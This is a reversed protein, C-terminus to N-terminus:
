SGELSVLRRPVARRLRRCGGCRPRGRVGVYTGDFDMRLLTVSASVRVCRVALHTKGIGPPGILM